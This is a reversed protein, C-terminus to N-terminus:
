KRLDKCSFPLLNLIIDNPDIIYNRYLKGKNGKAIIIDYKADSLELYNNVKVSVYM